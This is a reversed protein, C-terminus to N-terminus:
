HDSGLARLETQSSDLYRERLNETFTTYRTTLIISTCALRVSNVESCALSYATQIPRVVDVHKQLTIPNATTVTVLVLLQTM